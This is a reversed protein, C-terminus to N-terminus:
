LSQFARHSSEFLVQKQVHGVITQNRTGWTTGFNWRLLEQIRLWSFITLVAIQPGLDEEGFSVLFDLEAKWLAGQQGRQAREPFSFVGRVM